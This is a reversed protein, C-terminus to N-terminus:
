NLILPADFKGEYDTGDQATAKLVVPLLEKANPAPDLDVFVFEGRKTAGFDCVFEGAKLICTGRSPRVSLVEGAGFTLVLSSLAADTGTVELRVGDGPSSTYPKTLVYISTLGSTGPRKDSGVPVVAVFSGGVSPTAQASPRAPSAQARGGVTTTSSAPPAQPIATSSPTPLPRTSVTPRATTSVPISGTGGADPEPDPGAMTTPPRLVQETGAGGGCGSLALLGVALLATAARRRMASM